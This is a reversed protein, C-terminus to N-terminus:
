VFHTLVGVAGMTLCAIAILLRKNFEPMPARWEPQEFLRRCTSFLRLIKTRRENGPASQVFAATSTASSLITYSWATVSPM